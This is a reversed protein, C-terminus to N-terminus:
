KRKINHSTLVFRLFEEFDSAMVDVVYADDLSRYEKDAYAHALERIEKDTM